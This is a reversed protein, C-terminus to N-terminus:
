SGCVLCEEIEKKDGTNFNNILMNIASDNNTLEKIEDIDIGFSIPNVAPVSRCYYMGTKLGMDWGTYMASNLLDFSPTDIFLNLSQSQDIFPGRDASQKIINKLSMEFATKYINKIKDPIGDINQISGNNIIIRKKMTDSWLGLELLDRMLNNNIVIFDGALTSRVFINSMYPEVTESNSMIQATSATPM